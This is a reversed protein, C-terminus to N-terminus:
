EIVFGFKSNIARVNKDNLVKEYVWTYHKWSELTKVAAEKGVLKIMVQFELDCVILHLYTSFKGRAGLPLTEPATPYEKEFEKIALKFKEEQSTLQWYFQEHLFTALQATDNKLYRTNLTLVPHSSPIAKENIAVTDTFIWQAVPFNKIIRQLQQQGAIEADSGSQVGIRLATAKYQGENQAFGAQTIAILLLLFVNAKM